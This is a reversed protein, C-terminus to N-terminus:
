QKMQEVDRMIEIPIIACEYYPEACAASIKMYLEPHDNLLVSMAMHPRQMYRSLLLLYEEDTLNVWRTGNIVPTNNQEITSDDCKICRVAFQYANQTNELDVGVIKADVETIDGVRIPIVFDQQMFADEMWEHFDAEVLAAGTEQIYQEKAQCIFDTLKSLFEDSLKTWVTTYEPVLEDFYYCVDLKYSNTKMKKAFYPKAECMYLNEM